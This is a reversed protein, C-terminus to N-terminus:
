SSHPCTVEIKACGGLQLVAEQPMSSTTLHNVQAHVWWWVMSTISCYVESRNPTLAIPLLMRRYRDAADALISCYLSPWCPASSKSCMSHMLNHETHVQLCLEDLPSRKLEPMQVDALAQSRTRSYCHFAVGPQCRGARGRRQRESARSVWAAQLTSVGTYPDYSKEKLKGALLHVPTVCSAYAQTKWCEQMLMLLHMVCSAHSKDKLIGPKAAEPQKCPSCQLTRRREKGKGAQSPLVDNDDLVTQASYIYIM